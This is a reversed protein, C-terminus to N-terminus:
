ISQRRQEVFRALYFSARSPATLRRLHPNDHLEPMRPRAGVTTLGDGCVVRFVERANRYLWLCCLRRRDGVSSPKAKTGWSRAIGGGHVCLMPLTQRVPTLPRVCWGSPLLMAGVHDGELRKKSCFLCLRGAIWWTQRGQRVCPAFVGKV